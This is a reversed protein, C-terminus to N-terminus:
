RSAAADPAAVSEILSSAIQAYTLVGAMGMAAFRDRQVARAVAVRAAVAASSESPSPLILDTASM